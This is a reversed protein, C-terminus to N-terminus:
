VKVKGAYDSLEAFYNGDFCALCSTEPVCKKFDELSLFRLSDVHFYQRMEDVTYNFGALDQQGTREYGYLCPYKIMPAAIRLHVEKAGAEKMLQSIRRSTLGNVVSDDVLLVRKGRVVSSIANLRVRMGQERQEKTPHIFTSGIYRNKILGYEYPVGLTQSFSAAASTASDPVGVVIDAETDEQKALYYGCMKRVHHVNKENVISDPRSFYVYEMACTKKEEKNSYQITKMGKKRLVIIEGPKVERVYEANLITFSCTESSFAYGDKLKAMFLSHVGYPDRVAYLHDNTAVVYTCAGTIMENAKRIKEVFKGENRQILHALLEADGSGQFILGDDEMQNRLGIANTIMGTTAIAFSGQHARVMMPQVNEMHPELYTAMRVQGIAIDGPLQELIPGNMNENVLGLGKHVRVTDGDSAAIGVGDQGRHQIAHLALYAYQAAEEVGFLAVIGSSDQVIHTQDM